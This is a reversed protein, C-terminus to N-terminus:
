LEAAVALEAQLWDSEPCGPRGQRRREESIFYARLAIDQYSPTAKKAAKPAKTEAKPAVAKPTTAKAAAPKAAKAAPKVVDAKSVAKKTKTTTGM